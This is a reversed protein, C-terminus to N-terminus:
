ALRVGRAGTTSSAGAARVLDPLWDAFPAVAHDAGGSLAAVLADLRVFAAMRPDHVIADTADSIEVDPRASVYADVIAQIRPDRTDRDTVFGLLSVTSLVHLLASGIRADGWDFLKVNGEHEFVNGHHLDLHLLTSISSAELVQFNVSLQPIRRRISDEDGAILPRAALHRYRACLRIARDVLQEVDESGLTPVGAARIGEMRPSLDHQLEALPRQLRLVAELVRGDGRGMRGDIDTTAIWRGSIWITPVLVPSAVSEVIHTLEPEFAMGDGCRKAWVVSGDTATLRLVHSWPFDRVVEVSAIHLGLTAFSDRVVRPAETM